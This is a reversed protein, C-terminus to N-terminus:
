ECSDLKDGCHSLSMDAADDLPALLGGGKELLTIM